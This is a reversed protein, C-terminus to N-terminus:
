KYKVKIMLINMSLLGEHTTKLRSGIGDLEISEKLAQLSNKKFDKKYGTAVYSYGTDFIISLTEGKEGRDQPLFKLAMRLDSLTQDSLKSTM